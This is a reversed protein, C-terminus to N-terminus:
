MAEHMHVSGISIFVQQTIKGKIPKFLNQVGTANQKKKKFIGITMQYVVLITNYQKMKRYKGHM